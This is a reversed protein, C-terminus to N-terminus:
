YPLQAMCKVPAVYGSSSETLQGSTTKRWDKEAESALSQYYSERDCKAKAKFVVQLSKHEDKSSNIPHSSQGWPRWNHVKVAMTAAPPKIYGVTMKAADLIINRFQSWAAEADEALHDLASFRNQLYINYQLATDPDERLRQVHLVPHFRHRCQPQFHIKVDAILLWHDANAPLEAGCFVRTHNSSESFACLSTIWNRKPSDMM